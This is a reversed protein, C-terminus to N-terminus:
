FDVFGDDLLEHGTINISFDCSENSMVAFSKKIIQRSMQALFGSEEAALLFDTPLAYTTDKMQLRALCEYKVIKKTKNDIIAQFFPVFRDEKIALEVENMWHFLNKKELEYDINEEYVEIRGKGIERTSEIVSRADEISKENIYKAIGVTFSLSRFLM